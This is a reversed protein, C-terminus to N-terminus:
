NQEVTEGHTCGAGWLWHFSFASHCGKKHPPLHFNPVMWRVNKPDIDLHYKEPLKEMREWINKSFQCAVDYSLILFSWMYGLVASFFLFDMNCHREGVQLDGIGNARWMNHHACTVGGVGTVRLGKVHKVNALFMAQFGSCSSIEEEDINNRIHESYEACNCFYGLDDGVIPDTAETSIQRNILKFNTDEALELFYKYSQDEDLEDWNIDDWGPLLNWDPQPCARCPIALEGQATGEVGSDEQGQAACKYLEMLRYQRIIAHFAQRRDTELRDNNSLMELSRVFDYASIKGLCNELEFFRICNFTACTQPDLSTAPWLCTRMLQQRHEIRSDCGCFNLKVMRVGLLDIVVFDQACSTCTASPVQRIDLNICGGSLMDHQTLPAFFDGNWRQM